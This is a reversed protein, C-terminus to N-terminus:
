QYDLPVQRYLLYCAAREEPTLVPLCLFAAPYLETDGKLIYLTKGTADNMVVSKFKPLLTFLTKGEERWIAVKKPFIKVFLLHAGVPSEVRFVWGEKRIVHLLNGKLDRIMLKVGLRKLFVGGDTGKKTLKLRDPGWRQVTYLAHGITITNKKFSMLERGAPTILRVGLFAPLAPRIGWILIVFGFFFTMARLRKKDM